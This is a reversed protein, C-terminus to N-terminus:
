LRNLSSLLSAEWCAALPAHNVEGPRRADGACAQGARRKTHNRSSQRHRPGSRSLGAVIEVSDGLDRGSSVSKLVVKDGPGLIAVKAGSNM